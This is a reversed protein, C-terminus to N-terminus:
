THGRRNGIGSQEWQSFLSRCRLGFRERVFPAAGCLGDRSSLRRSMACSPSIVEGSRRRVGPSCARNLAKEEMANGRQPPFTPTPVILDVVAQGQAAVGVPSEIAAQPRHVILEADENMRVPKLFPSRVIQTEHVIAPAHQLEGRLGRQPRM